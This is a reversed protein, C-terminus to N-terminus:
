KSRSPVAMRIFVNEPEGDVDITYDGPRPAEVVKEVLRDGVTYAHTIRMASDPTKAPQLHATARLVNVGPKGTYKVFVVKAPKDLRVDEDWQYRWHNVWTPVDAKYIERFDAPQGVAYAIRNDTNKAGQNQHTTFCAGATFWDITTGFPAEFKMIVDGRIRATKRTVDYDAPM